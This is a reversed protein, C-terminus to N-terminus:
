ESGKLVFRFLGTYPVTEVLFAKSMRIELTGGRASRLLEFWMSFTKKERPKLTVSFPLDVVDLFPDDSQSLRHFTYATESLLTGATTTGERILVLVRRNRNAPSDLLDLVETELRTFVAEKDYGNEVSFEGIKFPNADSLVQAGEGAFQVERAKVAASESLGGVPPTTTAISVTEPSSTVTASVPLSTTAESSVIAVSTAQEERLKAQLALLRATLEEIQKRLAEALNVGVGGQALAALRARTLPGVFGTVPRIGEREQFRVVAARTLSFFNGNAPGGYLKEGQLFQQLRVVDADGRLGFSLNREFGAAWTAFPYMLLAAGFLFVFYRIMPTHPLYVADPVFSVGGIYIPPTDPM